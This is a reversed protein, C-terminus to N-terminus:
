CPKFIEEAPIYDSPNQLKDYLVFTDFFDNLPMDDVTEWSM